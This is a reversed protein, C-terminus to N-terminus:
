QEFLIVFGGGNKLKLDLISHADAEIIELVVATKTDAADRLISAKWKGESLFGCDLHYTRDASGNLAAVFWNRGKKRALVALDGIKSEPLVVTRDWVSPIKKLMMAIESNEPRLLEAPDEAIVQLPSTFCIVTALQHAITTPGCKEPRVTLPTYDAHGVIFRTFPLAANHWAPIPGEQMKNLELGRIGERTIENPYTRSEGTPKRCGHFNVMLKRQAAKRLAAIEFDITNKSESNLFDIKLGVAGAKKVQDFFDDMAKWGDAPDDIEKSHKWVFVGVNKQAADTCIKRLIDWKDPWLEWGEDITTYEFGLQHACDVMLLEQQPNGTGQSWWRWVSRGPRIYRVDSFLEPDPAPALNSIITTNVLDNLSEACIIVRWPTVIKGSLEFGKKGEVFDAEFTNHGVARYRMGSYSFCAAESLAAYGGNPLEIVLPAGQVPGTKSVTPMQSIDASVWLGAYSKLKWSNDREFYWVRSTPPLTFATKEGNVLRNGDGPIIYRFAFGDNYARAEIFWKDEAIKSYLPVKIGHCYNHAIAIGGLFPYNEDIAYREIAKEFVDNETSYDMSEVTIGMASMEIVRQDGFYISYGVDGDKFILEARVKGSPSTVSIDSANAFADLAVIFVFLSLLRM